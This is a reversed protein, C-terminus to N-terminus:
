TWVVVLLTRGWVAPLLVLTFPTYTGAILLYICIHDLLRMVQKPGHARTAHYLTSVGYLIVLSAGYVACGIVHRVSGRESALFLVFFGALSLALGLGHTLTNLFEEELDLSARKTCPGSM